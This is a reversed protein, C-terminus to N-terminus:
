KHGSFAYVDCSLHQVDGSLRPAGQAGDVVRLSGHQQAVEAIDKTPNNPGLVKARHGSARIMPQNTITKRVDELTITGDKHLPIYKLTAGTAKAAQQWPIINSHHEMPTLVIEDGAKLNMRAYSSAVTNIATTTGRTFIVEATSEA